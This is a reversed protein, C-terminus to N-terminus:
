QMEGYMALLHLKKMSFQETKSLLQLRGSSCHNRSYMDSHLMVKLLDPDIGKIKPVPVPPFILM